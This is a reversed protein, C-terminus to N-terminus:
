STKRRARIKKKAKRKRTSARAARRGRAKAETAHPKRRTAGRKKTRGGGEGTVFDLISARVIDELDAVFQDLSARLSDQASKRAAM